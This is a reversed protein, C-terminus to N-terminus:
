GGIQITYGAAEFQEKLADLQNQTPELPEKYQYERNLRQYKDEGMRIYPLLDVRKVHEITKLFSITSMVNDNSDTIGPVVPIRIIIEKAKHSIAKLNQQIVENLVLTFRKHDKQNFLKIDYLFLDIVDCLSEIQEKSCYGSTDLATHIADKKCQKALAYLFEYQMCPEGGSFTVGGDSEAYFIRDKEIEVMAEDVSYSIGVKEQQTSLTQKHGGRNVKDIYEIEQNQSEPNHCWWCRLPCGKFFLTTRIGPGDHIAFKKIDFLIGTKEM